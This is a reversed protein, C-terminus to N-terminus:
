EGPNRRTLVLTAEGRQLRVQDRTISVVRFEDFLGGARVTWERQKWRVLARPDNDWVIATLVPAPPEAPPLPRPRPRSAAVAPTVATARGFEFPDRTGAPAAASERRALALDVNRYALPVSVRVPAARFGFAGTVSLAALTRTVVVALVALAVLPSIWGALRQNM